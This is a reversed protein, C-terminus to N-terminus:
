LRMQILARVTLASVFLDFPESVTGAIHNYYRVYGLDAHFGLIPTIPVTAGVQTVQSVSTDTDELRVHEAPPETTVQNKFRAVSVGLSLEPVIWDTKCFEWVGAVHAEAATEIQARDNVEPTFM